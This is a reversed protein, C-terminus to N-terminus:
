LVSWIVVIFLEMINRHELIWELYDAILFLATKANRWESKKESVVESPQKAMLQVQNGQSVFTCNKFIIIKM